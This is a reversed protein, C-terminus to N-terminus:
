ADEKKVDKSANIVLKIGNKTIKRGKHVGVSTQEILKSFELQQLIKRIINGSAVVFKEPKVGRNKRSGYKVRLKSVGVPGLEQVKLLISAARIQWWDDRLPPRQKANGTKVFKAWEPPQCTEKLEKALAEVLKYHNVDKM